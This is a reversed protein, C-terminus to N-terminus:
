SLINWGEVQWSRSLLVCKLVYNCSKAVLITVDSDFNYIGLATFVM